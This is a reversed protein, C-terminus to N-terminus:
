YSKYMQLMFFGRFVLLYMHYFYLIYFLVHYELNFFVITFFFIPLLFCFMVYCFFGAEYYLLMFFLNYDGSRLSMHLVDLGIDSKVSLDAGIPFFHQTM